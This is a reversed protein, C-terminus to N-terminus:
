DTFQDTPGNVGEPYDHILMGFTGAEIYHTDWAHQLALRWYPAVGQITDSSDKDPPNPAGQDASRYLTAEGYLFQDYLFYGGVGAVRQGLAGDIQTAAAPMAATSSLIYPYGWAPTTNWVDQVTPNNNATIGYLLNGTTDAYRLDINDVHVKDEEQEYTF